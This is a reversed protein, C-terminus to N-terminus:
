RHGKSHSLTKTGKSVAWGTYASRRINLDKPCIATLDCGASISNAAINVGLQALCFSLSICFVGVRTGSPPTNDKAAVVVWIFFLIGAIPVIIAKVTFLHRMKQIPFWPGINSLSWFIMFGIFDRTNTGFSIPHTNRIYYYLPIIARICIVVCQGDIWAQVGYWVCAMVGRNLVPWFSGFIGFSARGIVPFSINYIAGTKGSICIFVAIITYGIWICLWAEWWSMGSDGGIIASIDMWTGINISDSLWLAVYNWIGWCRRSPEIM